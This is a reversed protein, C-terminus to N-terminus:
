GPLQIAPLVLSTVRHRADTHQGQLSIEALVDTDQPSEPGICVFDAQRLVQSPQIPQDQRPAFAGGDTLQREFILQQLRQAVQCGVTKRHPTGASAKNQQSAIYSALLRENSCEVHPNLAVSKATLYVAELGVQRNGDQGLGLTGEPCHEDSGRQDGTDARAHLYHSAEGIAAGWAGRDNGYLLIVQQSSSKMGFQCIIVSEV